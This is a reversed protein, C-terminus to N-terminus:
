CFILSDYVHDVHGVRLSDLVETQRSLGEQESLFSLWYHLETSPKVIM